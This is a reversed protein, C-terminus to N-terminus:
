LLIRENLAVGGSFISMGITRRIYADTSVTPTNPPRKRSPPTVTYYVIEKSMRLEKMYALLRLRRAQVGFHTIARLRTM